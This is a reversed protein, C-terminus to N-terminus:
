LTAGCAFKSNPTMSPRNRTVAKGNALSAGALLLGVLFWFVMADKSSFFAEQTIGIFLMGVTGGALGAALGRLLRDGPVDSLRLEVRLVRYALLVFAVLGVLGFSGLLLLYLSDVGMGYYLSAPGTGLLPSRFFGELASHWGEAIRGGFNQFGAPNNILGELRQRFDPVLFASYPLVYALIIAARRRGLLWFTILLAAALGFLPARAFTLYLCFVSLGVISGLAAKTYSSRSSLLWAVLIPVAIVYFAGLDYAGAFTSLLRDSQFGHFFYVAVIEGTQHMANFAPVLSLEQLVGYVGVLFVSAAFVALVIRFQKWTRVALLCLLSASFYELTRIWYLVAVDVESITGLFCLAFGLSLGQVGFFILMGRTLPNPLRFHHDWLSRLTIVGLAFALFVDETRIPVMYGGIPILPLKPILPVLLTFIILLSIPYRFALALLVTAAAVYVFLVPREVLALAVGVGIAGLFLAPWFSEDNRRLAVVQPVTSM